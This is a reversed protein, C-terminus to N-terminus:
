RRCATMLEPLSTTTALLILGIWSRSLGTKEAIIDGSKSLHFGAFGIVALCALLSLWIVFLNQM